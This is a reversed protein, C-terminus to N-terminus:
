LRPDGNKIGEVIINRVYLENSNISLDIKSNSYDERAKLDRQCYKNYYIEQNVEEGSEFHLKNFAKESIIVHQVGLKGLKMANGLHQLSIINNLFDEAFSFYSDDARYGKIIDYGSIDVKFYKLIYDKAQISIPSTLTFTRNELLIALWNLISYKKDTLDLIKLEKTDISYKNVWGQVDRSKAAWECALEYHQTCYFGIGYDNTKKGKKYEPREIKKDSGHYITLISM